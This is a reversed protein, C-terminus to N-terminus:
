NGIVLTIGIPVAGSGGGTSTIRLSGGSYLGNTTSPNVDVSAVNGAASGSFAVTFAAGAIDTYTTSGPPAYALTFTQNATALAAGLVLSFRKVRGSAVVPLYLTTGVASSSVTSYIEDTASITTPLPM